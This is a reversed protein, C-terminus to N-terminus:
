QYVIFTCDASSSVLYKGESDFKVDHVGDKHGRLENLLKAKEGASYIKVTQDDSAVALIRGSPDFCMKQAPHPGAEIKCLASELNRMDWLFVRGDCDSSAIMDGQLNVTVYNLANEHGYLTQTSNGNADLRIDWLQVTKDASSTIVNNTFPIFMASNVSDKHARFTTRCRDSGLDWLRATHDMSATVVFDGTENFMCTWVALTHDTFTLLCKSNLLDWLKATSDGSSTCLHTGRPHFDVGSIWDTHGEGSMFIKGSTLSWMKWTMDDSVTAVIPSKPHIALSSVCMTHGEFTDQAAMSDAGSAPISRTRYPNSRNDPPLMSDRPDPESIRETRKLSTKRELGNAKPSGKKPKQSLDKKEDGGQVELAGIRAALRDRDLQVLMKGSIAREYRTRLENVVPDYKEAHKKLRELDKRLKKNEQVVRSHNRKHYEKEDKLKQLREV